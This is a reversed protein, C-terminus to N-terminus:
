LVRMIPVLAAVEIATLRPGAAIAISRHSQLCLEAIDSVEKKLLQFFANAIEVDVSWRGSRLQHHEAVDAVSGHSSVVDAAPVLDCGSAEGVAIM